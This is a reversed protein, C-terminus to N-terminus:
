FSSTTKRQCLAKIGLSPRPAAVALGSPEHSHGCWLVRISGGAGLEPSRPGDSQLRPSAM